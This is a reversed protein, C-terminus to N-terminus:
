WLTCSHPSTNQWCRTTVAEACRRKDDMSSHETLRYGTVRVQNNWDSRKNRHYTKCDDWCSQLEVDNKESLITKNQIKKIKM